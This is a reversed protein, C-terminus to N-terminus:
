GKGHRDSNAKRDQLHLSPRTKAAQVLSILLSVSFSSWLLAWWAPAEDVDGVYIAVTVGTVIAAVVSFPSARLIAKRAGSRDSNSLLAIVLGLGAAITAVVTLAAFILLIFELSIAMQM